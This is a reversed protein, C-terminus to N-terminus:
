VAQMGLQSTLFYGASCNCGRVGFERTKYAIAAAYNRSGALGDVFDDVADLVKLLLIHKLQEGHLTPLAEYTACKHSAVIDHLGKRLIHSSACVISLKHLAEHSFQEFLARPCSHRVRTHPNTHIQERQRSDQVAPNNVTIWIRNRISAFAPAFEDRVFNHFLMKIKCFMSIPTGKRKKERICGFHSSSSDQLHKHLFSRGLRCLKISRTTTLIHNMVLERFEEFSAVEQPSSLLDVTSPSLVFDVCARVDHLERSNADLVCCRSHSHIAM